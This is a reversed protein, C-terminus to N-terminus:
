LGATSDRVDLLDRLFDGLINLSCVTLFILMGPFVTMWWEGSAVYTRADALMGGWSPAPPQVGLGLFSLSAEAIIASAVLMTAHVLLPSLSNRLIDGFLIRSPRTGIAREAMVYQEERETLVAGRVIRAIEPAYLVGIVFMMKTIHPLTIPGIQIPQSGLAAIVTIALIIPPFALLVDMMRMIVNDIWGPGCYGAIAGLPVGIVLAIAVTVFGVVLSVRAAAICRSLIDRGFQDTGFLFDASPPELRSMSLATPSYPELLGPFLAALVIAALVVVSALALLDHGLARLTRRTVSPRDNVVTQPQMPLDPTADAM